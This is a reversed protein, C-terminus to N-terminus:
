SMLLHFCEAIFNAALVIVLEHLIAPYLLVIGLVFGIFVIVLCIKYM